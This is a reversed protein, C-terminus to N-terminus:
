ETGQRLYEYFDKVTVVVDKHKIKIQKPDFIMYTKASTDGAEKRISRLEDFIVGAYGKSKLFDVFERQDLLWWLDMQALKTKRTGEYDNVLRLGLKKVDGKLRDADLLKSKSVYCVILDNDGLSEGRNFGYYRALRKSDSLFIGLNDVEKMAGMFGSRQGKTLKFGSARIKESKVRTTGHYLEIKGGVSGKTTERVRDYEGQLLDREESELDRLSETFGEFSSLDLDGVLTTLAESREAIVMREFSTLGRRDAM